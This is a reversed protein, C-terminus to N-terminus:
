PQSLLCPSSTINNYRGLSDLNYDTTEFALRTTSYQAAASTTPSPKRRASLPPPPPPKGIGGACIGTGMVREAPVFVLPEGSESRATLVGDGDTVYLRCKAVELVLKCPRFGTQATGLSVSFTNNSGVNSYVSVIQSGDFGKRMAITNQQTDFPEAKYFLYGGDLAAMTSRLAVFKSIWRYLESQTDYGTLWLAQRNLPTDSGALGQELGQYIVPIGDMLLTFTLANKLLVRDTTHHLFRPQDHNELFSGYLTLDRAHLAMQKIGISLNWISGRTSQFAQTIWYYAPYNLLGSIVDQYPTVYVPDGHLVEGIAFVGASTEFEPWFSMEVHKASDLRIGDFKFKRVMRKIWVNFVQRVHPDETRLDPLSVAESGQWCREVTEQIEYNIFCPPLHYASANSFPRFISFDVANRPGHWAMHNTVVDAMLYMGRAHVADALAILDEATGFHHNLSWIDQAWYGHYSDGDASQGEINKVIPSIWIATAGLGQIYDLRQAIGRWTGGCYAQEEMNCPATTSGDSRAFRDTMVQYITQSRWEAPSLASVSVGQYLATAALLSSWGTLVKM